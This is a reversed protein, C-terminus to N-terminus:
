IEHDMVWRQRQGQKERLAMDKGLGELTGICVMIPMNKVLGVMSRDDVDRGLVRVSKVLV